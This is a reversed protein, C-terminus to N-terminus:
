VVGPLRTLDISAYCHREPEPQGADRLSQEFLEVLTAGEIAPLEIVFRTRSRRRQSWRPALDALNFPLINHLFRRYLVQHNADAVDLWHGIVGPPVAQHVPADGAPAEGELTQVKGLGLGDDQVKLFLKYKKKLPM